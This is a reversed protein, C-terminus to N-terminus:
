EDEEVNGEGRDADILRVDMMYRSFASTTCLLPVRVCLSARECGRGRMCVCVRVCVCVCVCVRVAHSTYRRRRIYEITIFYM